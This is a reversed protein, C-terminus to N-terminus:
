EVDNYTWYRNAFFNWFLVVGITFALLLNEGILEPAIPIPLALEHFYAVVPAAAQHLIVERIVLGVVNVLLYQGAQEVLTRSRSDPFTWYRNLIFNSTVALVFSIGGALAPGFGLVEGMINFSAFDIVAGITGVIGFKVFRRIERNDRLNAIVTM